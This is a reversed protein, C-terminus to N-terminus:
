RDQLEYNNTPLATYRSNNLARSRTKIKLKKWTRNDKFMYNIMAYGCLFVVIITPITLAVYLASGNNENAMKLKKLKKQKVPWRRLILMTGNVLDFDEDAVTDPQISLIVNQIPQDLLEEPTIQLPYVGDLNDMWETTFFADEEPGNVDRKKFGSGNKGREIYAMHLRVKKADPFFRTYWTIWHTEGVIIGTDHSPSCFPKQLEKTDYVKKKFYRDPTCRMIPNLLRDEANPEPIHKVEEHMQGSGKHEKIVEGLSITTTVAVDFYNGHDPSANKTVGDKIVPVITKLFGNPQVSLWPVPTKVDKPKASFTVGGIITPTVLEVKSSVTRLWPSPLSLATTTKPAIVKRKFHEPGDVVTTPAPNSTATTAFAEVAVVTPGAIAATSVLAAACSLLLVRFPLM